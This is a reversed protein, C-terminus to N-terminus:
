SGFIERPHSGPVQFTVAARQLSRIWCPSGCPKHHPRTIPKSVMADDQSMVDVDAPAPVLSARSRCAREVGQTIFHVVGAARKEFWCWDLGYHLKLWDRPAYYTTPSGRREKFKISFGSQTFDEKAVLRDLSIQGANLGDTHPDTAFVVTRLKRFPALVAAAQRSVDEAEATYVYRRPRTTTPADGDTKSIDIWKRKAPLIVNRLHPIYRISRPPLGRKLVRLDVAHQSTCTPLSGFQTDQLIDVRKEATVTAFKWYEEFIDWYFEKSISLLHGCSHITEPPSLMKDDPHDADYDLVIHVKVQIQRLLFRCAMIRLEPPLNMYWHFSALSTTSPEQEKGPPTEGPAESATKKKKADNLSDAVPWTLLDKQQDERIGM